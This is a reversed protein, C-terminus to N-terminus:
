EPIVTFVRMKLSESFVRDLLQEVGGNGEWRLGGNRCGVRPIYVHLIEPRAHLLAALEHASKEILPMPSRERFDHKTPFTIMRWADFYYLQNGKEQIAKGLALPLWEQRAKAELAVGAGMVAEGNARVIGNTTVVITGGREYVEFLKAPYQM